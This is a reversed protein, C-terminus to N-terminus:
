RPSLSKSNKPSSPTSAGRKSFSNLLSHNPNSHSRSRKGPDSGRSEVKLRGREEPQHDKTHNTPHFPLLTTDLSIHHHHTPSLLNLLTGATSKSLHTQCIKEFNITDRECLELPLQPILNTSQMHDPQTGESIIKPLFKSSKRSLENLKTPGQTSQLSTIGVSSRNPIEQDKQQDNAKEEGEEDEELLIPFTITNTEVRTHDSGNLHPSSPATNSMIHDRDMKMKNREIERTRYLEKTYDVPVFMVNITSDSSATWVILGDEEARPVSLLTRIADRHFNKVKTVYEGSKEWTFIAGDWSVSWVLPDIVRIDYIDGLPGKLEKLFCYNEMDVIWIVGNAGESGAIWVRNEIQAIKGPKKGKSFVDGGFELKLSRSSVDWVQILKDKLLWITHNIFVPDHFLTKPQTPVLIHHTGDPSYVSLSTGTLWLNNHHEIFSVLVLVDPITITQYKPNTVDLDLIESIEWALLTKEQLIYLKNNTIVPSAFSIFVCNTSFNKVFHYTISDWVCCLGKADFSFIYKEYRLLAFVSRRHGVLKRLFLPCCTEQMDKKEYLVPYMEIAWKLIEQGTCSTFVGAMQGFVISLAGTSMKNTVSNSSVQMFYFLLKKILVQNILPIKEILLLYKEAREQEDVINMLALFEQQLNTTFLPVDPLGRLYKKLLSAVNEPTERNTLFDISEGRGSNFEIEYLDMQEKCGPVRFLGEANLGKEMLFDLCKQVILPVEHQLNPYKIREYELLVSLSVCNQGFMTPVNPDAIDSSVPSSVQNTPRKDSRRRDEKEKVLQPKVGLFGM